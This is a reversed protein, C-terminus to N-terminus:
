RHRHHGVSSHFSGGGFHSPHHNFHSGGVRPSFSSHHHHTPASRYAYGRSPGGYSRYPYGYSRSALGLPSYYRSSYYGPRAGYYGPYGLGYYGGSYPRYTSVGVSTYGGYFPDNYCSTLSVPLLAAGLLFILKLKM